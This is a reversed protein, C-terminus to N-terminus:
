VARGERGGDGDLGGTRGVRPPRVARAPGRNAGCISARAEEGGGM